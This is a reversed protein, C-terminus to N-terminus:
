DRNHVFIVHVLYAIVLRTVAHADVPTVLTRYAGCALYRAYFTQRKLLLLTEDISAETWSSQM